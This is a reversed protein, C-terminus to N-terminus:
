RHEVEDESRLHIECAILVAFFKECCNQLESSHVKTIPNFKPNLGNTTTQKTRQQLKSIASYNSIGTSLKAPM